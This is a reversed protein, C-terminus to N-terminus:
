KVNVALFMYRSIHRGVCDPGCVAWLMVVLSIVDRLKWGFNAAVARKWLSHNFIFDVLASGAFADGFRACNNRGAGGLSFNFAQDLAPVAYRLCTRRSRFLM